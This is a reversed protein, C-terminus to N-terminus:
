YTILESSTAVLNFPSGTKWFANLASVFPYSGTIQLYNMDLAPVTSNSLCSSLACTIPTGVATGAPTTVTFTLNLQSTDLGVGANQIVTAINAVSGPTCTSGSPCFNPYATYNPGHVVAWRAGEKVAYAVTQYLWMGRAMEFTGILVFILPIGVLTFEILSSGKQRKRRITKHM